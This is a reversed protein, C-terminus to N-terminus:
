PPMPLSLAVTMIMLSPTAALPLKATVWPAWDPM